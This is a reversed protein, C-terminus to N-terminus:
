FSRKPVWVLNPGKGNTVFSLQDKRVWVKKTVKNKSTKTPKEKLNRVYEINKDEKKRREECANWLHGTKGCFNCVLYEPLAVYKRKRFDREYTIPKYAHSGFGLGVKNYNSGQKNLLEVVNSSGNWKQAFKSVENMKVHVKSLNESLLTKEKIVKELDLTLRENISELEITKTSKSLDTTSPVCNAAALESLKKLVSFNEIKLASNMDELASLKSNLSSNLELTVAIEATVKELEARLLDLAPDTTTTEITSVNTILSNNQELIVAAEATVKAIESLLSKNETRLTLTTSELDIVVSNFSEITAAQKEVVKSQKAYKRKLEHYDGCIDNIQVTLESIELKQNHCAELTQELAPRLSRTSMNKVDDKLRLLSVENDELAEEDSDSANSRGMLCLDVRPRSSSGKKIQLGSLCLKAEEDDEDDEDHESSEDDTDLEGWCAAVMAQKYERKTEERKTKSKIDGWTPCNRIMHGTEGCKFCAGKSNNSKSPFSKKRNPPTQENNKKYLSNKFRKAFMVLSDDCLDDEKPAAKLAISKGKSSSKIENEADITLEYTMLSGLLESYEFTSLDKAVQIATVQPRWEPTLSRLIKRVRDEQTIPKGLNRLENTISSFRTSMSKIDEGDLMKFMEYKQTLLAIRLQKVQSTGEYALELNDWIEKATTCASVRNYEEESIGNQLISIAKSNKEAIKFDDEGYKSEPKAVKLGKSDVEDIALPGNVIITWCQWDIGKVYHMMKNKWTSYDKGNFVPCRTHKTDM